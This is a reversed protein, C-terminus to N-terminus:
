NTSLEGRAIAMSFLINLHFEAQPHHFLIFDAILQTATTNSREWENMESTCSDRSVIIIRFSGFMKDKSQFLDWANLGVQTMQKEDAIWAMKMCKLEITELWEVHSFALWESQRMHTQKHLVSRHSCISQLKSFRFVIKRIESFKEDCMAFRCNRNRLWCVIRLSNPRHCGSLLDTRQGPSTYDMIKSHEALAMQHYFSVGVCMSNSISITKRLLLFWYASVPMGRMRHM